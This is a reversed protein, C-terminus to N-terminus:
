RGRDGGRRMAHSRPDAPRLRRLALALPFDGRTPLLGARGPRRGPRHQHHSRRPPTARDKGQPGRFWANDGFTLVLPHTARIADPLLAYAEVLGLVNKRFDVNGLYYFFPERVGHDALIRADQRIEEGIAPRFFAPDAAGRINAIRGHPIRLREHLDRGTAGSIAALLDYSQLKRLDIDYQQAVGDGALYHRPYLAPILDYFVAALQPGHAVPEPIAFKRREVVPNLVLLWDLEHPNDQAIQQLTGDAVGKPDPGVDIWRSVRDDLDGDWDIELDSRRYFSFDWDPAEVLLARLLSGAYRGIGRGRCSPAQLAFLDVGIRM